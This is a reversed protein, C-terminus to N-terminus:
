LPLECNVFLVKLSGQLCANCKDDFNCDAGFFSFYKCRIPIGAAPEDATILLGSCFSFKCSLDATCHLLGSWTYRM